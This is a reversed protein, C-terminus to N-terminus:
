RHDDVSQESRDHRRSAVRHQAPWAHREGPCHGRAFQDPQRHPQDHRGAHQGRHAASPNALGSQRQRRRPLPNVLDSQAQFNSPLVTGATGANVTATLVLQASAGIALNGITWVGTATNFSGVGYTGGTLTLGAPLFTYLEVGTGAQDLPGDQNTVTVTLHFTGGELPTLNDASQTVVLHTNPQALVIPAIETYSKTGVLVSTQMTITAISQFDPDPTFTTGDLLQNITALSATFSLSSGSGLNPVSLTGHDVAFTVTVQNDGAAAAVADSVIIGYGNAASFVVPALFNTQVLAPLSIVPAPNSPILPLSYASFVPANQGDDIVAYIYYPSASYPQPARDLLGNWNYTTSVNAYPIGQDNYQINAYPIKAILTGHYGSGQADSYLSISTVTTGDILNIAGPTYSHAAFNITVSEESNVQVRGLIVTPLEPKFTVHFQPRQNLRRPRRHVPHRPLHRRALLEARAPARLRRGPRVRRHRGALQTRYSFTNDLINFSQLLNAGSFQSVPAVLINDLPDTGIASLGSSGPQLDPSTVAIVAQGANEPVTFETSYEYLGLGDPTDEYDTLGTLNAIDSGDLFTFQKNFDYKFGVTGILDINFWAAAFSQSPDLEPRIQFYFNAAGLQYGGIVPIDKPVNVSATAASPSTM